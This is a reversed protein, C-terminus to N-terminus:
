KLGLIDLGVDDNHHLAHIDHLTLAYFILIEIFLACNVVLCAWLLM